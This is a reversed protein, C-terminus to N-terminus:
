QKRRERRYAAAVRFEAAPKRQMAGLQEVVGRAGAVAIPRRRIQPAHDLEPRFDQVAGTRGAEVVRHLEDRRDALHSGIALALRELTEVLGLVHRQAKEEKRQVMDRISRRLKQEEPQVTLGAVYTLPQIEREGQGAFGSRAVGANVRREVPQIFRRSANDRPARRLEIEERIGPRSDSMLAEVM